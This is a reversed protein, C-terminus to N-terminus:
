VGELYEPDLETLPEISKKCRVWLAMFTETSGMEKLQNKILTRIHPKTQDFYSDIGTKPVGPIVFSKFAGKFARKNEHLTLDSNGGQNEKEAADEMDDKLTRKFNDHPGVVGNKTRSFAKSATNQIVQLSPIIRVPFVPKIKKVKSRLPPTPMEEPSQELLLVILDAKKLKYYGRVGKDKTISRLGPITKTDM